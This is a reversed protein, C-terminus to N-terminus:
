KGHEKRRSLEYIETANPIVNRCDSHPRERFFFCFGEKLFQGFVHSLRHFPKDVSAVLPMAETQDLHSIPKTKRSLTCSLHSQARKGM